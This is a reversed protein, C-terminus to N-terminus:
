NPNSSLVKIALQITMRSDYILDEIELLQSEIKEVALIYRENSIAKMALKALQDIADNQAAYLLNLDSQALEMDAVIENFIDINM